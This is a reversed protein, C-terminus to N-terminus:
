CTAHIVQLVRRCEKRLRGCLEPLETTRAIYLRAGKERVLREADETVVMRGETGTGVVVCDVEGAEELYVRLEEGSLPTHRYVDAYKKSLIKAHRKEVRGDPYM